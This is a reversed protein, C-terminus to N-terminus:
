EIEILLPIHDSIQKASEFDQFDQFFYIPKLTCIINKLQDLFFNDYESALCDNNICKQKLSTKQNVFAPRYGQKKLPDFVSHAQTLNFDGLFILNSDPYTSKFNKLYKIETEPQHKKPLAHLSVLTFEQKKHTFTAMYPEREINDKQSQDLFAKSKLKVKSTSWIYAYRESRYPSSNTPDSIIYDWKKGSTRNLEESIKAITQAGSPNTVVEQIAIVDAQKMVKAIYAINEDTKSKGVNQLNWTMIKVQAISLTTTLVLLLLTIVQKLKVQYMTHHNIINNNLKYITNRKYFQLIKVSWIVSKM